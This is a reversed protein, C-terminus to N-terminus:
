GIPASQGSSNFSALSHWPSPPCWVPAHIIGFVPRNNHIMAINTTFEGNRNIFEKTGDLPDVLWYNLWNSRKEYEIKSSEESIIPINPYMKLLSKCIIENSLLDATTLPSHDDKLKIENDTEYINMIAKGANISIEILDEIEQTKILFPNM